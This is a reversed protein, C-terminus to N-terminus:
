FLPETSPWTRRFGLLQDTSSAQSFIDLVTIFVTSTGIGDPIHGGVGYIKHPQDLVPYDSMRSLWGPMLFPDFFHSSPGSNVMITLYSSRLGDDM